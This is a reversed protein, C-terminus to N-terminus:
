VIEGALNRQRPAERQAAELEVRDIREHIERHAASEPQLAFAPL